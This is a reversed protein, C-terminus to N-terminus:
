PSTRAQYFRNGRNTDSVSVAGTFNTFVGLSVWDSLPLAINTSSLVEYRGPASQVTFQFQQNPNIVFEKLVPDRTVQLRVNDVDWYGGTLAFSTTSALQVGVQKGAWADSGKVPPVQVNFDTLYTNTPFLASTNTITTSAVAVKNSAADRYYFSIAFTADNSMGGGGGVVGVTLTYSNGVEYKLNFGHTPITNTGGVSLYDQFIAVDPLAFLFAAQKGDLNDIHNPAGNSTNLFQGMLQAWPFNTDSYWIPQPAKQWGDMTPGAFDTEPSEFSNNPLVSETLRVNDIDWYGGTLAFSTTSALRIGINKGAWVDGSRVQPVRAQFDTFHTNRQFLTKTNTITTAAVTVINSSEDRYYVSLEFTAGNSMGGGGGLVAVTLAYSKGVEFKADFERAPMANTGGMYDQFIAVDPLAFLYAGQRGEVNDIHDPAGNSTNLFQGMLQSWPFNTDNYWVPQPAKQWADMFPSAFDTGPSEFSDNPVVSETLRVNDVDWYGGLLDFGVTSALQIGIRKGAWADTAKVFPIRVYFDTFHTNTPFLATSNTITTAGVTVRNSSADRFYLSIQFTAGNSMGGGGGLVSVTLTYSKGAEFQANFQRSPTSNTGSLTNYDQFVAVGPVAFLFVAQRADMNDIHDPAGNSPNLFQGMLQAWPFNTDNYWPPQPAKQWSGMEPTAFDTAPLEFSGNPVYLTGALLASAGALMLAFCMAFVRERHRHSLIASETIIASTIM